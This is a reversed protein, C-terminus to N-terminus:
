CDQHHTERELLSFVKEMAMFAERRPRRKTERRGKEWEREVRAMESDLLWVRMQARILDWFEIKERLQM